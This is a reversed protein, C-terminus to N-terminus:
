TDLELLAKETKTAPAVRIWTYSEQDEYLGIEGPSYHRTLGDLRYIGPALNLDVETNLFRCVNLDGRASRRAPQDEALHLVDSDADWDHVRIASSRDEKSFIEFLIRGAHSPPPTADWTTALAKPDFLM